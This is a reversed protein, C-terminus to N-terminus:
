SRRRGACCPRVCWTAVPVRDTPVNWSGATPESRSSRTCWTRSSLRPESWAEEDGGRRRRARQAPCSPRPLSARGRRRGRRDASRCPGNSTSRDPFIIPWCRRRSLWRLELFVAAFEEYVRYTTSRRCCCTKVASCSASKTSPRAVWGSRRAAARRCADLEGAPWGITWRGHPRSRSVAAALVEVAGSRPGHGALM